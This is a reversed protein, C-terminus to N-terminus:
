CSSVTQKAPAVPLEVPYLAELGTHGHHHQLATQVSPWPLWLLPYIWLCGISGVRNEICNTRM